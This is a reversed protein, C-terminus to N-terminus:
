ALAFFICYVITCICVNYAFMDYVGLVPSWRIEAPFYQRVLTFLMTVIDLVIAQLFDAESFTDGSFVEPRLIYSEFVVPAESRCNRIHARCLYHSHSSRLFPM